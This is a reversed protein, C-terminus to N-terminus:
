MVGNALIVTKQGNNKNKYIITIYGGNASKSLPSKIYEIKAFNGLM